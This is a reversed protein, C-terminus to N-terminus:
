RTDRSGCVGIVDHGHNLYSQSIRLVGPVSLWKARERRHSGPGIATSPLGLHLRGRKRLLLVRAWPWSESLSFNTQPLFRWRIRHRQLSRDSEYRYYAGLGVLTPM